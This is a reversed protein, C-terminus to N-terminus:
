FCMGVNNELLRRNKRYLKPESVSKFYFGLKDDKYAFVDVEVSEDCKIVIILTEKRKERWFLFIVSFWM